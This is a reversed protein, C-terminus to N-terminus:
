PRSLTSGPLGIGSTLFGRIFSIQISRFYINNLWSHGWRWTISRWRETRKKRRNCDPFKRCCFLVLARDFKVVFDFGNRRSAEPKRGEAAGVSIGAGRRMWRKGNSSPHSADFGGGGAPANIEHMRAGWTERAQADAIACREIARDSNPLDLQLSLVPEVAVRIRACSQSKM